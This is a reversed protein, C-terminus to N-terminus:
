RITRTVCLVVSPRRSALKPDRTLSLNTPSCIPRRSNVFDEGQSVERPLLASALGSGPRMANKETPAAAEDEVIEAEFGSKKGQMGIVFVVAILVAFILLSKKPHTLIRNLM